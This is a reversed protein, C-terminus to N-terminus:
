IKSFNRGGTPKLALEIFKACMGLCFLIASMVYLFPKIDTIKAALHSLDLVNLERVNM